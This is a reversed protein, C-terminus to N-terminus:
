WNDYFSGVNSREWTRYWVDRAEAFRKDCEIILSNYQGIHPDKDNIWLLLDIAIAGAEWALGNAVGLAVKSVLRGSKLAEKIVLVAAILADGASPSLDPLPGIKADAWARVQTVCENQVARVARAHMQASRKMAELYPQMVGNGASGISAAQKMILASIAESFSAVAPRGTSTDCIFVSVLPAQGNSSNAFGVGCSVLGEPDNFNVPDGEVYAYRNWSGPDSPGGSARYPDPTTFRGYTASYYRNQAYQLGGQDAWYTAFKVPSTSAARSSVPRPVEAAIGSSNTQRSRSM